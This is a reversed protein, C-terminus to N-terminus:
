KFGSFIEGSCVIIEGVASPCGAVLDHKVNCVKCAPVTTKM